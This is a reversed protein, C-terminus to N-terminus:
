CSQIYFSFYFSQMCHYSVGWFWIGSLHRSGIVVCIRSLILRIIM